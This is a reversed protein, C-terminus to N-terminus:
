DSAGRSRERHARVRLLLDKHSDGTGKQITFNSGHIVRHLVIHPHEVSTVGHSMARSWWDVLWYGPSSEDPLGAKSFAEHRFLSSGFLRASRPPPVLFGPVEAVNQVAGAIVDAGTTLLEAHRVIADDAWYDDADLFAILATEVTRIGRALAATQGSRPQRIVTVLDGYPTVASSLDDSSGDDVVVITQPMIEQRVISDLARPITSAANYAPIVVSYDLQIM